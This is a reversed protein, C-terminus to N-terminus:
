EPMAKLKDFAECMKKEMRIRDDKTMGGPLPFEALNRGVRVRMSLPPLGLKALDLKGDKPLGKVGQLNWNNM